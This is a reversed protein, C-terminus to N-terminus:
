NSLMTSLPDPGESQLLDLLSNKVLHMIQSQPTLDKMKELQSSSQTMHEKFQDIAEIAVDADILAHEVEHMAALIDDPSLTKKTM